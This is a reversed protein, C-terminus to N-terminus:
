AEMRGLFNLIAHADGLAEHTEETPMSSTSSIM